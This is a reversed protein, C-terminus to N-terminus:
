GEYWYGHHYLFRGRAYPLNDRWWGEYLHLGQFICAGRGHRVEPDDRLVEGEYAEFKGGVKDEVIKVDQWEVKADDRWPATIGYNYGGLRRREKIGARREHGIEKNYYTAAIGKDFHKKLVENYNAIVEKRRAQKEIYELNKLPPLPKGLLLRVKEKTRDYSQSRPRAQARVEKRRM